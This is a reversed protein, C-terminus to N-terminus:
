FQQDGFSQNGPVSIIVYANGTAQHCSNCTNTMLQYHRRFIAVQQNYIAEMVSDIEPYIMKVAAAERTGAHYKEIRKFGGSLLHLEYEALTWNKNNGAMWLKIHHPQIINNMIEGTGPVYATQLKHELSDIRTLLINNRDQTGPNCAALVLFSM